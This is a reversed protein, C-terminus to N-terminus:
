RYHRSEEPTTDDADGHPHHQYVVSYADRPKTEVPPTELNHLQVDERYAALTLRAQQLLSDDPRFGAAELQGLLEGLTHEPLRYRLRLRQGDAEPSAAVGPLSNLLAAAAAADIGAALAISRTKTLEDHPM